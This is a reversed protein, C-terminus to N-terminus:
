AAMRSKSRAWSKADEISKFACKRPAGSIKVAWHYGNKVKYRSVTVGRIGVASRNRRPHDILHSDSFNQGVTCIYVNDPSYPGSDGYRAMCYGQGRGREQWRGSEQWIRWWDAFTFQWGIGRKRSSYRQQTFKNFPSKSHSASGFECSIARYQDLTLGWRRLSRREMRELKEIKRKHVDGVKIFSQVAQGGVVQYNNTRAYKAIIQRIRERTVGFHEGVQALTKGSQYMIVIAEARENRKRAYILGGPIPRWECWSSPVVSTMQLHHVLQHIMDLM